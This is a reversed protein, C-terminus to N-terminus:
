SKPGNSNEKTLTISGSLDTRFVAIEYESFRQLTEQNPHGYTNEGVSIIATEPHLTSLLVESSSGSSGHHGAILVEIDPLKVHDLLLVECYAPMDGTILIDYNGDTCLVAACRENEGNPFLPQYISLLMNNLSVSLDSEIYIIESDAAEAFSIIEDDYTTYDEPPPIILTGIDAESMLSIVGNVHDAHYHTLILIDVTYIGRKHLYDTAIEGAYEGSTSGCDIVATANGSTAVICQGQGVNLVTVEFDTDSVTLKPLLAIVCLASLSVCVPIIYSKPPRKALIIIILSLYTLILWILQATNATHVSALFSGASLKAIWMIYRLLLSAVSACAAGAPLFIAGLVCSLICLFFAASLICLVLVSALPAIVSVQGFYVACLPTTFILAGVSASFLSVAANFIYRPINPMAAAPKKLVNYIREAFMMIGLVSAFSLQRSISAAAYPDFLIILLVASFLSTYNDPERRFLNAASICLHMIGARCVSPTFGSFAMFFLIFPISVLSFRRRNKIFIAPISLIFSLHMGSVAVIHSLGSGKFWSDLMGNEYFDAKDGTILAKALPFTDEPFISKVMNKVYHATHVGWFRLSQSGKTVTVEEANAYIRVGQTYLYDDTIDSFEVFATVTDGPVTDEPFGNYCRLSARIDPHNELELEIDAFGDEPYSLVTATIHESTGALSRAPAVFIASYLFFYMFGFTLGICGIFYGTRAKGKLFVFGFALVACVCACIVVAMDSLLYLSLLISLSFASAFIVLKRM